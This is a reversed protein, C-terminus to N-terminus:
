MLYSKIVEILKEVTPGLISKASEILGLVDVDTFFHLYGIGGACAIIALGMIIAFDNSIAPGYHDDLIRRRRDKIERDILRITQRAERMDKKIQAIDAVSNRENKLRYKCLDITALAEVKADLLSHFTFIQKAKKEGFGPVSNRLANAKGRLKRAHRKAASVKVERWKDSEGVGAIDGLPGSYIANLKSNLEDRKKLLESVEYIVSNVRKKKALNNSYPALNTDTTLVRYYRDNDMSEYKM